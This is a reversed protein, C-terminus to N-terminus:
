CLVRFSTRHYISVYYCAFSHTIRGSGTLLKGDPMFLCQYDSWQCGCSSRNKQRAETSEGHHSGLGVWADHFRMSVFNSDHLGSFHCGVFCILPLFSGDFTIYTDLPYIPIAYHHVAPTCSRPCVRLM